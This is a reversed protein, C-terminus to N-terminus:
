GPPFAQKALSAFQSFLVMEVAMISVKPANSSSAAAAQLLGLYTGYFDKESHTGWRNQVAHRKIAKTARPMERRNQSSLMPFLKPTPTQAVVQLSNLAVAVRADYIAYRNPDRICLIKSWSAIGSRGKAILEDDRNNAYDELTSSDNGKVGGWTEVIYKELEARRDPHAVWIRHLELKLQVTEDYASKSATLAVGAPLRAVNLRRWSYWSNTADWHQDVLKKLATQLPQQTTMGDASGGSTSNVTGQM